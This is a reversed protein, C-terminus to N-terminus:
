YLKITKKPHFQIKATKSLKKYIKKYDELKWKENWKLRSITKM